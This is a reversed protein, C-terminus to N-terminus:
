LKELTLILIFNIKNPKLPKHAILHDQSQAKINSRVPQNPRNIYDKQNSNLAYIESAAPTTPSNQYNNSQSHNLNQNSFDSVYNSQKSSIVSDMSNPSYYINDKVPKM